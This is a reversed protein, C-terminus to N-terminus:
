ENLKNKLFNRQSFLNVYYLLWFFPLLIFLLLSFTVFFNSLLQLLFSLVLISFYFKIIKRIKQTRTNHNEIFKRHLFWSIIQWIIAITGTLFLLAFSLIQTGFRESIFSNSISPEIYDLLSFSWAFIVLPIIIGLVLLISHVWIDIKLLKLDIQVIKQSSM